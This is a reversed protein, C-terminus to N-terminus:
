GILYPKWNRFVTGSLFCESSGKTKVSEQPCKEFQKLNFM